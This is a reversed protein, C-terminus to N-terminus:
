AFVNSSLETEYSVPDLLDKSFVFKKQHDYKHSYVHTHDADSRSLTRGSFPSM